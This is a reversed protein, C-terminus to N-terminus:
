HIFEFFVLINYMSLNLSRYISLLWFYGSVNFDSSSLCRTIIIYIRKKIKLEPHCVVGLSHNVADVYVLLDFYLLSFLTILFLGHDSLPLDQMADAMLDPLHEM